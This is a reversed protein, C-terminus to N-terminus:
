YGAYRGPETDISSDTSGRPPLCGGADGDVVELAERECDLMVLRGVVHSVHGFDVLYERPSLLGREVQFHEEGIGIVSGLREGDSCRVAMGEHVFEPNVM